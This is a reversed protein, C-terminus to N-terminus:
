NKLAYLAFWGQKKRINDIIINVNVCTEAIMFLEKRIDYSLINIIHSAASPEM